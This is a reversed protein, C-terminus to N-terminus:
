IGMASKPTFDRSAQPWDNLCLEAIVNARMVMSGATQVPLGQMRPSRNGTARSRPSMAAPSVRLLNELGIGIELGAVDVLRQAIRRKEGFVLRDLKRRRASGHFEQDVHRKRRCRGAWGPNRREGTM